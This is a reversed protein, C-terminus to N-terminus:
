GDVKDSIKLVGDQNDEVAKKLKSLLAREM